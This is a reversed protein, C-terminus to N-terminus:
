RKQFVLTAMSRINDVQVYKFPEILQLNFDKQIEYLINKTLLFRNIDEPLKYVGNSILTIYDEIGKDTATRIFITGGKKLVRVMESIMKRFHQYSQAFHLVANCIVHDFKEDEFNLSDLHQVSFHESQSKFRVKVFGIAKSNNDIGYVEFDNAYFWKLNRGKACGADLIIEKNTYRKKLIQDLLYNDIGGIAKELVELDMNNKKISCFVFELSYKQPM